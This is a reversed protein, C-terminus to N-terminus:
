LLRAASRWPLPGRAGRPQSADRVHAM